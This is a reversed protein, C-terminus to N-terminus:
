LLEHCAFGIIAVKESFAASSLRDLLRRDERIAGV